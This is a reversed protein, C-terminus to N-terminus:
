VACNRDIHVVEATIVEGASCKLTRTVTLCTPLSKRIFKGVVLSEVAFNSNNQQSSAATQHPKM